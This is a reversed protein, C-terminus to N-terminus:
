EKISWTSNDSNWEKTITVGDVVRQGLYGSSNEDWYIHLNDEYFRDRPLSNGQDDVSPWAIPAEWKFSSNLVWSPFPKPLIFASNSPDWTWGIGAVITVPFCWNSPWRYIIM